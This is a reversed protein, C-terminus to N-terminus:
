RAEQKASRFPERPREWHGSEGANMTNMEAGFRVSEDSFATAIQFLPSAETAGEGGYRLHGDAFRLYQEWDYATVDHEGIRVHGLGVLMRAMHALPVLDGSAGVSGESPIEPLIDRNLAAVLLDVVEPRIGSYGRTLANARAVMIARTEEASFLKGQGVSLHHLLNLQHQELDATSVRTGSLPGFGTNIGYVARPEAAVKEVLARSALMRERAAAPIECQRRRHAIEWVDGLTLDHGTLQIM